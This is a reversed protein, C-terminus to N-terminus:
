AITNVVKFYPRKDGKFEAGFRGCDVMIKYSSV